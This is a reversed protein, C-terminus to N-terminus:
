VSGESQQIVNFKECRKRGRNITRNVSQDAGRTAAAQNQDPMIIPEQFLLFNMARESIESRNQSEQDENNNQAGASQERQEEM